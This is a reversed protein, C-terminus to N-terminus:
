KTVEIESRLHLMIDIMKRNKSSRGCITSADACSIACVSRSNELIYVTKM